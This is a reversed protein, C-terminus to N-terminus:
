FTATEASHAVNSMQLQTKISEPKMEKPLLNIQLLCHANKDSQVGTISAPSLEWLVKLSKEPRIHVSFLKM